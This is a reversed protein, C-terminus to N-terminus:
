KRNRSFTLFRMKLMQWIPKPLAWPWVKYRGKNRCGFYPTCFRLSNEAPSIERSKELPNRRRINRTWPLEIRIDFMEFKKSTKKRCEGVAAWPAKQLEVNEDKFIRQIVHYDKKRSADDHFRLWHYWETCRRYMSHVSPLRNWDM